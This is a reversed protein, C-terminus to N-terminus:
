RDIRGAAPRRAAGHSGPGSGHIHNAAAVPAGEPAYDACSVSPNWDVFMGNPNDKWAWVHLEYFAPLGYRNPSGAYQALQGMLVPPGANTEHWLDAVVLYEVGVLRLKGQSPEYILAEPQEPDLQDDGALDSKIFHLGMAGEQPGSVCGLAMAYGAAVAEAPNQFRATVRRVVDVLSEATVAREDAGALAGEALSFALGATLGRLVRRNLMM